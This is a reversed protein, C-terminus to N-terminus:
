SNENRQLLVLQILGHQSARTGSATLENYFM